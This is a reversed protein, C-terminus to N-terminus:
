KQPDAATFPSCCPKGIAHLEMIEARTGDPDILNLQWKADRGIKPTNSQGDLRAGNWLLTYAAGVDPVGLSFHNLVGRDAASIQSSGVIMYELWDTGDPVQQSIWTPKDDTMGGLWYPKFGLSKRFFEDERARDHIIFGVHIIHSSLLNAPIEPARAGPQVFEIRNGEPDNVQFWRSGDGGVTLQQDAKLYQRLAAVDTTTFAVHDLRNAAAPAPLVEVFQTPSFYYRTGRPNEPDPGKVAGLDHVYFRESKQPDAAYVAIHSVGTIPPRAVGMPIEQYSIFALHHHDGWGYMSLSGRDGEFTAVTRILGDSLVKLSMQGRTESLFAVSRGDPSVHPSSNSNADDTVQEAQTGDPRMRWIQLAGARSSDFYMWQGDPTYDPGDNLTDSTLRTEAGGAAAITFIDAKDARGRTFAITKSDPSWAHFYGQTLRHAKGDTIAYLDHACSVAFTTRDPSLGFNGSCDHLGLLPVNEAEGGATGRRAAPAERSERRQAGAAPIRKIQGDEYFYITKGDSSWNASQMYAPVSRLVEARRYQDEVQITRLTSYRQTEARRSPQGLAVNAFEVKDTTNVDHSVAGLGVYFPEEMHVTVSAGVQHLPEGRMSLYLSFTDGRKEIRVTRPLEINLEIDETNAGAERRFQLATLGSGHVGVGVYVGGSELSQRFMLIGKRHPNPEHAYTRPPFTVDATLAVDGASKKWLYHFNDVRYWTNEGASTLTYTNTDPAYAATGPPSVSGVDSEGEFEGIGIQFPGAPLGNGDFLTCVPSDAWCYRVRTPTVGGSEVALIVKNGEIRARAFRCTHPADGCLEFAIPTASSYAVLGQEVDAFSVVIGGSGWMAGTAVPGSPALAEGYVVHRAARALRKGVDQKNTPHLNDPEGIDITVALGAHADAAVAQKQAERLQAWDSEIPQSSPPGYDPLQVVVFPLGAGFQRRWDAMLGTLLDRYTNAEGSNSEGQYWLAAKFGFHGLPAIMANYLTTLGGVPEWPTRQPYGVAAPVVRYQWPGQLAVSSGDSLYVARPKGGALMGRSGYNSNANVVLVNAGAHLMGPKIDYSRDADYGFTNGLVQGNIWTEDVQNIAGLDIRVASKAQAATLTVVTRYWMLGGYTRLSDIGWYRWDRPEGSLAQWDGPANVQWPESGAKDGTRARWWQGWEKGFQQQAAGADQAYLRLLGLGSEYHGNAHLAESSMWPRINAGGWSSHVLGIPLHVRKQLERAFYFCTASWDPVTVPSASQWAVPGAFDSQPTTSNAHTVTLMRISDNAAGHIEADTDGSRKVPLEMNSQGSCLFVDGVLVDNASQQAGSSDRATLVYPGGASRAPLVAKWQGSVDARATVAADALSVTVIEGSAAHGWVEIPRDRQLVAHDQFLAQM